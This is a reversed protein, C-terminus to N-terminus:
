ILKIKPPRGRKRADTEVPKPSSEGLSVRLTPRASLSFKQRENQVSLSSLNNAAPEACQKQSYFEATIAKLKAVEKEQQMAIREKKGPRKCPKWKTELDHITRKELEEVTPLLLEAPIEISM